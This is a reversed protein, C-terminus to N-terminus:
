DGFNRSSLCPELEPWSSFLGIAKILGATVVMLVGRGQHM